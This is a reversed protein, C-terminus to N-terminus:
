VSGCSWVTRHHWYKIAAATLYKILYNRIFSSNSPYHLLCKFRCYSFLIKLFICIHTLCIHLMLEPNFHWVYFHIGVYCFFGLVSGTVFLCCFRGLFSVHFATLLLWLFSVLRIQLLTMALFQVAIYKRWSYDTWSSSRIVFISKDYWWPSVDCWETCMMNACM